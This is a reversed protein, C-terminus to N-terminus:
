SHSVFNAVVGILHFMTNMNLTPMTESNAMEEWDFKSVKYTM